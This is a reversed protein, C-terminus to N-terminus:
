LKNIIKNIIKIKILNIFIWIYLKKYHKNTLLNYKIMENIAKIRAWWLCWM